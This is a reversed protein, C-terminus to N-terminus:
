LEVQPPTIPLWYLPSRQPHRADQWTTVWAARGGPKYPKEWLLVDERPPWTAPDDTIRTWKPVVALQAELRDIQKGRLASLNRLPVLEDNNAALQSELNAIHAVYRDIIEQMSERYAVLQPELEKILSEQVGSRLAYEKAIVELEAIRAHLEEVDATKMMTYPLDTM